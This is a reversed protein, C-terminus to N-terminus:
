AVDIYGKYYVIVGKRWPYCDMSMWYLGDEPVIFTYECPFTFSTKLRHPYDFNEFCVRLEGNGRLDTIVFTVEDGKHLEGIKQWVGLRGGEVKGEFSLWHETALCVPSVLIVVLVCILCWDLHNKEM